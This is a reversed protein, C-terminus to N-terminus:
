TNKGHFFSLKLAVLNVFDSKDMKVKVKFTITMKWMLLIVMLLIVEFQLFFNYSCSSLIFTLSHCLTLYFGIDKDCAIPM